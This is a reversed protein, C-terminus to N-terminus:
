SKPLLSLTPPTKDNKRMEAGAARAERAVRIRAEWDADTKKPKPLAPKPHKADTSKMM